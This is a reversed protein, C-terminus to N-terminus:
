CAQYYEAIQNHLDISIESKKPSSLRNLRCTIQPPRFKLILAIQKISFRYKSGTPLGELDLNYRLAM